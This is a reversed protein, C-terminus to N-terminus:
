SGSMDTHKLVASFAGVFLGASLLAWGPGTSPPSSTLLTGAYSVLAGSAVLGIEAGIDVVRPRSRASLLSRFAQDVDSNDASHAGRRRANVAAISRVLGQFQEEVAELRESGTVSFDKDQDPGTPEVASVFRGLPDRKM